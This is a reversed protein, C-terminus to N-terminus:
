CRVVRLFCFRRANVRLLVNVALDNELREVWGRSSVITLVCVPKRKSAIDEKEDDNM